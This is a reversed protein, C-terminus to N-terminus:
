AGVVRAAGAAGGPLRAWGFGGRGFDDGNYFMILDDKYPLVCAYAQMWSDFDGAAPRNDFMVPEVQGVCIGREEVRVSMLRYADDGAVRYAKGRRSFWLRLGDHQQTIWPRGLGAIWAPQQPVATESRADWILGDPSHTTRIEYFPDLVGKVQRWETGGVYWMRYGRENRRVVPASSFYPDFPGTGHVPGRFPKRFILGDDSVALGIGAHSRVDKRVVVGVYYLRVQGDVDLVASPSAGEHDFAGPPGRDLLPDFHEAVIRMNDGPDLDVALSRTCNDCDRAGFYIRWLRDSLPLATPMQAHSVWWPHNQKVAVLLGERHWLLPSM